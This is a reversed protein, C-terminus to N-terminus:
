NSIKAVYKRTIETLINNCKDILLKFDDSQYKYDINENEKYLINFMLKFSEEDLILKDSTFDISKIIRTLKTITITSIIYEYRNFYNKLAKQIIMKQNFSINLTIMEKMNQINKVNELLEPNKILGFYNMALALNDDMLSHAETLLEKYIHEKILFKLIIDNAIDKNMEM